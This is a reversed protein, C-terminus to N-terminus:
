AQENRGDCGGKQRLLPTEYEYGGDNLLPIITQKFDSVKEEPIHIIAWNESAKKCLIYVQEGISYNDSIVSM